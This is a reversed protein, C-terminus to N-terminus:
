YFVANKHKKPTSIKILKSYDQSDQELNTKLNSINKYLRMLRIVNKAYNLRGEYMYRNEYSYIGINIAEYPNHKIYMEIAHELNEIDTNLNAQLLDKSFNTYNIKEDWKSAKNNFLKDIVPAETDKYYLQSQHKHCLSIFPLQHSRRLYSYGLNDLDEAECEKCYVPHNILKMSRGYTKKLDPYGCLLYSKYKQKTEKTLFLSQYPFLSCRQFIYAPIEYNIHKFLISFLIDGDYNRALQYLKNPSLKTNSLGQIFDILTPYGNAIALRYIYSFFLEDELPEIINPVTLDINNLFDIEEQTNTYTLSKM